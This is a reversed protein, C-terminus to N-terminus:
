NVRRYFLGPGDCAWWSGQLTQGDSALALYETNDGTCSALLPNTEPYQLLVGREAGDSVFEFTGSATLTVGERLRTKVFTFDARLRYSEQWEMEEGEMVVPMMGGTM